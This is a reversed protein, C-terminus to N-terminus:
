ATYPLAFVALQSRAGEGYYTITGTQTTGWKVNVEFEYSTGATLSAFGTIPITTGTTAPVSAMSQSLIRGTTKDKVAVYVVSAQPQNVSLKGSFLLMVDQGSNSYTAGSLGNVKYWTNATANTRTEHGVDVTKYAALISTALKNVTVANDDLKATSVAEDALNETDVAGSGINSNDIGGNAWDRVAEFNQQIPEADRPSGPTITHPLVLAM